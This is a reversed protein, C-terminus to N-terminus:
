RTEVKILSESAKVWGQRGNGDKVQFWSPKQSLITLVTDKPLSAITKSDIAPSERLHVGAVLTVAVRVGAPKGATVATPPAATKTAAVTASPTASATTSSTATSSALPSMGARSMAQEARYRSTITWVVGLMFFLVIWPVTRRLFVAIPDRGSDRQSTM